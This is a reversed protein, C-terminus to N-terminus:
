IQLITEQPAGLIKFCSRLAKKIKEPIDPNEQRIVNMLGKGLVRCRKEKEIYLGDVKAILDGDNAEVNIRLYWMSFVCERMLGQLQPFPVDKEFEPVLKGKVEIAFSTHPSYGMNKLEQYFLRHEMISLLESAAISEMSGKPFHTRPFGRHQFRLHLLEHAINEEFLGNEINIYVVPTGNEAGAAGRPKTGVKEKADITEIDKFQVAVGYVSSIENILGQLRNSIELGFITMNNM